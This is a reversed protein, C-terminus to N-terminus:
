RRFGPLHPSLLFYAREALDGLRYAIWLPLLIPVRILLVPLAVMLNHKTSAKM